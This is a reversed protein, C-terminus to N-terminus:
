WWKLIQCYPVIDKTRHPVTSYTQTTYIYVWEAGKQRIDKELDPM